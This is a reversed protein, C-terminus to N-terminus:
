WRGITFSPPVVPGDGRRRANEVDRLIDEERAPDGIADLNSRIVTGVARGFVEPALSRGEFVLQEVDAVAQPIHGIATLTAADVSQDDPLLSEVEAPDVTRGARAATVQSRSLFVALAAVRSTEPSDKLHKDGYTRWRMGRANSVPVGERNLRDHINKLALDPLKGVLEIGSLHLQMGGRRALTPRERLHRSIAAMVQTKDIVHGAAFADTLYHGAATDLFLAAQYDTEDGRAAARAKVVAQEHLGRWMARNLRAFHADNRGALELYRGGTAAAYRKDTDGDKGRREDDMIGLVGRVEDEPARALDAPKAYFDGQLAIIQGATLGGGRVKGSDPDVRAILAGAAVPDAKIGDILGDPDLGHRLAWARGDPTGLYAVLRQLERDGLDQHEAGEFRRVVTGSLAGGGQRVHALEHALIRSGVPSNWDVADPDLGVVGGVTFAPTGLSRALGATVSDSHVRVDSLGRGSMTASGLSPGIGVTHWTRAATRDAEREGQAHESSRHTRM